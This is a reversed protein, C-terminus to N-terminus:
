FLDLKITSKIEELFKPIDEQITIIGKDPNEKLKSSLTKVRYKQLELFVKKLWDHVNKKPLGFHNSINWGFHRYDSLTICNKSNLKVIDNGIDIGESYICVYNLIKIMDNEEFYNSFIASTYILFDELKKKNVTRDKSETIENIQRILKPKLLLGYKLELESTLFQSNKDNSNYLNNDGKGNDEVQKIIHLNGSIALKEIKEKEEIVISSAQLTGNLDNSIKEVNEKKSLKGYYFKIIDHLNFTIDVLAFFVINWTIFITASILEAFEVNDTKQLIHLRAFMAVPIGVFFIIGFPLAPYKFNLPLVKIEM